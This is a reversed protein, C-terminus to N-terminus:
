IEANENKTFSNYKDMINKLLFTNVVVCFAWFKYGSKSGALSAVCYLM